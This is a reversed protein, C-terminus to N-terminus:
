DTLIGELVCVGNWDAVSATRCKAIYECDAGPGSLSLCVNTQTNLNSDVCLLEDYYIIGHDDFGYTHFPVAMCDGPCGRPDRANWEFCTDYVCLGDSWFCSGSVLCLDKSLPNCCAEDSCFNFSPSGGDYFMVIVPLSTQTSVTYMAQNGDYVYVLAYYDRTTPSTFNFVIGEGLEPDRYPSCTMKGVSGFCTCTANNYIHHFNCTSSCGGGFAPLPTDFNFEYNYYSLISDRIEFPGMLTLSSSDGCIVCVIKGFFLYCYSLFLTLM